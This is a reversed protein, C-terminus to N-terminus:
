KLEVKHHKIFEHRARKNSTEGHIVVGLPGKITVEMMMSKFPRLMKTAMTACEDLSMIHTLHYQESHHRLAHNLATKWDKFHDSLHVCGCVCANLCVLM